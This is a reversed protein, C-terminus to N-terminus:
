QSIDSNQLNWLWGNKHQQNKKQVDECCKRDVQGLRSIERVHRESPAKHHGGGKKKWDNPSAKM